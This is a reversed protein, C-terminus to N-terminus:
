METRDEPASSGGQEASDSGNGSGNGSGHGGGERRGGGRKPRRRRKSFVRSLRALADAADRLGQAIAEEGSWPEPNLRDALALLAELRAPDQTRHPVRERIIPHWQRLWAIQEEPSTGEIASPITIRPQAVRPPAPAPAASARQRGGGDEGGPRARKRLHRPEPSAEIIQQSAVLGRWDFEIEPYQQELEQIIGPEFARQGVRVGPPTRFVYLIRSRQRPGEHFWHMLFTTEYGRKDRLVRLFPV